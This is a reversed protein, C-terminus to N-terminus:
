RLYLKNIKLKYKGLFFFFRMRGSYKYGYTFTTNLALNFPKTGSRSLSGYTMKM